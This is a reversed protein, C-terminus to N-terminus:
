MEFVQFRLDFPDFSELLDSLFNQDNLYFNLFNDTREQLDGKPFLKESLNQIQSLSTEHKNEEAKRIKKELNLVNTKTKQFEAQVSKKLTIDIKEAKQSVKEFIEELFHSEESLDVPNQLNKALFNAKLQDAGLFLDEISIGLKQMKATDNKQLILAFNRPLLMPFPVAFNEFVAKLQFWYALEGPGGTYSLNPLIMEQYVPRLIVNPSFKQPNNEIEAEIEARSFSINSNLVSFRDKEAVIRERIQNDLYFLNIERPFVQASYGKEKLKESSEQVKPLSIQQLIEQKIVPSFIKKLDQDDGDVVLLGQSAYLENVYFRTADALNAHKQYADVFLPSMEATQSIVNQLGETKFRGVAGKEKSEWEYKKGFLRFNNIEEFDHDESAMWYVPVFNYNPYKKRLIQATKIVTLIKYHFYLTGSFINLQHGTTVTFTRENLLLDLVIQPKKALHQYQKQLSQYLIQRNEKPFSIKQQIQREFNDLTPFLDYFETLNGQCNVYDLFIKSFQNTKEFSIATNKM